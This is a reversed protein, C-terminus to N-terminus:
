RSLLYNFNEGSARAQRAQPALTVYNLNEGSARTKRALPALTAKPHSRPNLNQWGITLDNSPHLYCLIALIKEQSMVDVSGDM